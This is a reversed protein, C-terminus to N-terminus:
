GGAVPPIFVVEDHEKLQVSMAEYRGNIGVRLIEEPIDFQYNNDLHTYLEQATTVDVELQESNKGAKERLLAFYRVTLKM